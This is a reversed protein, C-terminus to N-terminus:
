NNMINKCVAALVVAQVTPETTFCGHIHASVYSM